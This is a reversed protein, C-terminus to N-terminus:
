LIGVLKLFVYVIGAPALWSLTFHWIKFGIGSLGVEKSVIQKDMIHAVFLATMLGGVPLMINATLYDITDFISKEFGSISLMAWDAEAFSFISGLALVWLVFGAFAAAQWRRLGRREILWAVSSEILAIASTFAAFVLMMFFLTGLIAGGPMENFAIPLTKFILGPGADPEMGNAFVIPYIALGAVLAVLTDAVSIWISTKLISTGKPLYAGYMMMVGSALSLTFFAHGMAVVVGEATLKSFDPAFMFEFAQGFNGYTASYGAIGLLLVLMAPMAYNVAKELGKQVGKAVVFSTSFLILTTWILLQIPDSVFSDFTQGIQEASQAALDGGGSKLVYALAWGAIVAYFSLILYGAIVGMWGCTAWAKNANAEKALKRVSNGPSQRGRKGILVEAMMIPIGLLIICILYVLVFAGGGNEGMIYPFKWINGLGVAAGTAALMYTFRSSWQGHQSNNNSQM